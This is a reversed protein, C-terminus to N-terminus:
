HSQNGYQGINGEKAMKKRHKDQGARGQRSLNEKDKRKIVKVIDWNHRSRRGVVGSKLGRNNSHM